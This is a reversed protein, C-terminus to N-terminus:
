KDKLRYEKGTDPARYEITGRVADRLNVQGLVVKEWSPALSDEFDAMFVKVNANMANIIMKRDVPGTIEVRRDRLDAPIGRISWNGERVSRTTPLFDPLAGADIRSQRQKRGALLTDVEGAFAGCLASLLALAGANFIDDQGEVGQRRIELGQRNADGSSISQQQECEIM